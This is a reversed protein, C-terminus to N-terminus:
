PFRNISLTRSTQDIELAPVIKGEFRERSQDSTEKGFFKSTFMPANTGSGFLGGRGNPIGIVPEPGLAQVTGGVNWVAGASARRPQQDIVGSLLALVDFVVRPRVSALDRSSSRPQPGTNDM